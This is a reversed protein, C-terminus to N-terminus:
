SCQGNFKCTTRDFDCLSPVPCGDCNESVFTNEFLLGEIDVDPMGGRGPRTGCVWTDSQRKHQTLKINFGDSSTYTLTSGNDTIEVKTKDACDMRYISRDSAWWIGNGEDCRLVGNEWLQVYMGDPAGICNRMYTHATICRGKPAPKPAPPDPKPTEKPKWSACASSTVTAQGRPGGMITWTTSSACTAGEPSAPPQWPAITPFNPDVGTSICSTSTQCVGGRPGGNCHVATTSSLCVKGVPVGSSDTPTPLDPLGPLHNPPQQGGGNDNDGGAPSTPNSFDPNTGAPNFTCWFGDCLRGCVNSCLPGPKGPKFEVSPGFRPGPGDNNGSGSGPLECADGFGRAELDRKPIPNPNCNPDIGNSRLQANYIVKQKPSVPEPRYTLFRQTSDVVERVQVPSLHGFKQVLDPHGRFYAILGTVLPAAFSTGRATGGAYNAIHALSRTFRLNDGPAYHTLMGDFVNFDARKSEETVAGIVFPAKLSKMSRQPENFPTSPDNGAAAVFVIGYKDEMQKMLMAHITWLAHHNATMLQAGYSMNVVAKNKQGKQDNAIMLLNEIAREANFGGAMTFQIFVLNSARAIGMAHGVAYSTVLYGHAKHDEPPQPLNWMPDPFLQRPNANAIDRDNAGYWGGDVVYVTQGTGGQTEWYHTFKDKSPEHHPKSPDTYAFDINFPYDPPMSIMSLHWMRDASNGESRKLLHKNNPTVGNRVIPEKPTHSHGGKVQDLHADELASRPRPWMEDRKALPKADNYYAARVQTEYEPVEDSNFYDMGHPGLNHVVIFGTFGLDDARFEKYDGVMQRAQLATKRDQLIQLVVSRALSNSPSKLILFAGNGNKECAWNPDLRRKVLSRREHEPMGTMEPMTDFAGVARRTLKCAQVTKTAEADKFNCGTITACKSKVQTATTKTVGASVTTAFSSTTLCLSAEAPTCAEPKPPPAIKGGPLVTMKPWPPLTGKITFGPPLKIKDMPPPGPPLIGEPFNWEWGNIEINFEPWSICVWFFWLKCTTKSKPGDGDDDEGKEPVETKVPKIDGTVPWTPNPEEGGFPTKTYPEWTPEPPGEPEPGPSIEPFGGKNDTKTKTVVPKGPAITGGVIKPWPPLTLTRVQTSGGDLTLTTTIPKISISPTPTITGAGQGSTIRVNYYDMSETTIEPVKVTVTKTTGPAVELSTTYPPVSITTKSSLARPPLVLQCPGTCQAPTGSYVAPDLYVVEGEADDPSGSGPVQFDISWIMTGGFCLSDAFARKAAFTEDDDYGIWQDDWTIQKMMSDPLYQPKLNKKKILQQIELLSMVGGFGTCPAPKSPGSFGCLLQNCSPDALTYGRGYMALGFNLKQPNLGDFWLPVTNNRIERIDAQGRVKKGLALVDADWSGHLDYAMFGFFDVYQEMAKADFWRLYWYDPALTLSIGYSQGYAARMERVLSVLNRTDALKNGGRKPDGPYEWDLDVGSFGFTDMYEKVSSIFAARNAKTSVMQSWTKHTAVEPNSFDFGGIAIWTKLRSSALSTFEKMLEIDEPHAPAIRFSTPDIFAFSFFIHTYKTTDLQKPSVKNCLRTRVNWSQYYGITRASSGGSGKACAPPGTISCSGYGAQCPLTKHLPDANDCYVQTTGCWGTASCCLKMGCPMDANESYEGCMATADCQSKCGQGCYDPGYGCISDKGCCSGDICPATDCRLADRKQFISASRAQLKSAITPNASTKNLGIADAPIHVPPAEDPNQHAPNHQIQDFVKQTKEDIPWLDKAARKDQDGGYVIRAEDTASVFPSFLISQSAALWLAFHSLQSRM